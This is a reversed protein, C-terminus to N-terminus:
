HDGKEAATRRAPGRLRPGPLGRGARGRPRRGRAPRRGPLRRRDAHDRNWACSVTRRFAPRGQLVQHLRAPVGPRVGRADGRQPQHHRRRPRGGCPGGARGRRPQAPRRPRQHGSPQPHAAPAAVGHGRARRGAAHDARRLRLVRGRRGSRGHLRGRDGPHGRRTRARPGPAPGRWVRRRDVRPHLVRVCSSCRNTINLYISGGARYAVTGAPAPPATMSYPALSDHHAAGSGRCRPGGTPLGLIAPYFPRGKVSTVSLRMARQPRRRSTTSGESPVCAARPWAPTATPPSTVKLMSSCASATRTSCM